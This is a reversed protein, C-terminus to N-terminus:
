NKRKKEQTEHDINQKSLKCEMWNVCLEVMRSASLIASTVECVVESILICFMEM